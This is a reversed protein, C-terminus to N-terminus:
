LRYDGFSLVHTGAVWSDAGFVLLLYDKDGEVDFALSGQEGGGRGWVGLHRDAFEPFIVQYEEDAGVRSLVEEEYLAELRAFDVDAEVLAIVPDLSGSTTDIRVSVKDGSSLNDLLFPHVDLQRINENIVQLREQSAASALSLCALLLFFFTRNVPFIRM